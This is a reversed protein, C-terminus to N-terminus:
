MTYFPTKTISFNDVNTMKEAHMTEREHLGAAAGTEIEFRGTVAFSRVVDLDSSSIAQVASSPDVCFSADNLPFTNIRSKQAV